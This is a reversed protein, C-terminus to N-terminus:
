AAPWTNIPWNHHVEKVGVFGAKEMYRKYKTPCAWDKGSRWAADHLKNAWMEM